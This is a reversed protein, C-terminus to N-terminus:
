WSHIFVDKLRVNPGGESHVMLQGIACYLSQRSTDTKVEYVETLAGGKKVYLDILRSNPVIENSTKKALRAERLADVVDGHRSIYDIESSRAGSKRGSHERNYTENDSSTQAYEPSALHGAPKM